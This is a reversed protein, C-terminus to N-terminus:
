ALLLQSAGNSGVARRNVDVKAGDQLGRVFASEDSPKTFGKDKYKFEGFRETIANKKGVVLAMSSAQSAVESDKEDQLKELAALIRMVFGRRYNDSEVKDRKCERQYSRCNNIVTTTLYDFTYACVQVDSKYGFFRICAGHEMTFYCAAECDHFKALRTALWQAWIPVRQPRHGKGKKMVCPQDITEFSDSRALDARVIDAHDLQFKRMIKEAQSAAAAAEAPNAREDQAIALLKQVRRMVGELDTESM